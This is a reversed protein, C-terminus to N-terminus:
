LMAELYPRITEKVRDIAAYHLLREVNRRPRRVYERIAEIAVDLGIRSRFRFCDAITKELDFVPVSVGDIKVKVVGAALSRPVMRVVRVPLDDVKPVRALRPIAIWVEFPSQTTLDHVRLASLLCVVAGPVRRVVAALNSQPSQNADAPVYLGRGVQRLRGQDRLRQLYTRAIGHAELDRPRLVGLRKALNLTRQAPDM